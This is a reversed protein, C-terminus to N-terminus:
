VKMALYAIDPADNMFKIIHEWVFALSQKPRYGKSNKKILSNLHVFDKIQINEESYLTTKLMSYVSWLTSPQFKEKMKHFYILLNNEENGQASLLHSNEIKWKKYTEYVLLYRDASKKPLNVEKIITKAIDDFNEDIEDEDMSLEEFPIDDLMKTDTLLLSLRFNKLM